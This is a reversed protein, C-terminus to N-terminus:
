TKAPIKTRVKYILAHKQWAIDFADHATSGQYNRWTPPPAGAPQERVDAPQKVYDEFRRRMMKMCWDRWRDKDAEDSGFAKVDAPLRYGCVHLQDPNEAHQHAAVEIEMRMWRTVASTSRGKRQVPRNMVDKFSENAPVGKVGHTLKWIKSSHSHRGAKRAADADRLVGAYHDALLGGAITRALENGEDTPALAIRYLSNDAFKLLVGLNVTAARGQDHQNSLAEFVMADIQNLIDMM